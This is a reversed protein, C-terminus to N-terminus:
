FLLKYAGVLMGFTLLSVACMASVLRLLPEHKGIMLAKVRWSWHPELRVGEIFHKAAPLLREASEGESAQAIELASM